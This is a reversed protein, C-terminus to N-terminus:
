RPGAQVAGSGGASLRLGPIREGTVLEIDFSLQRVERDYKGTVSGAPAKTDTGRYIRASFNVVPPVKMFYSGGEFEVTKISMGFKGLYEGLTNHIQGRTQELLAVNQYFLWGGYGFGGLIAAVIAVGISNTVRGFQKRLFNAWGIGHRRRYDADVAKVTKQWKQQMDESVALRGKSPTAPVQVPSSPRPRPSSSVLSQGGTFVATPALERSRGATTTSPEGIVTEEDAMDKPPVTAARSPPQDTSMVVSASSGAVAVTGQMSRGGLIRELERIVERMSQYRQEPRKAVMKKFVFDLAQPVDPRVSQLSPIPKQRHALIKEVLTEGEYLPKGTLLYFLTCGLSYIDARHDVRKADLSQEPPMYDVTGMIQGTKTLSDPSATPEEGSLEQFRVLGLDLIKVVGQKNLLLNSPKIDRHVIGQTHAYELGRAAQLIYDVAQSVPLPGQRQVLSALDVGEVFEMVLFHTGGAEDADYATVVNPHLLKSAAEVERQFRQVAAPSESAWPPLIKLAVIRGMRRHRAKFVQGMGGEGLKELIVYNGLVLTNGKGELLMTRQFGTLKQTKVLVQLVSEPDAPQGEAEVKHIAADLEGQTCLGIQVLTTVLSNLDATM